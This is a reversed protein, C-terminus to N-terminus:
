TRKDRLGHEVGLEFYSECLDRVEKRIGATDGNNWIKQFSSAGSSSMATIRADRLDEKEINSGTTVPELNKWLM